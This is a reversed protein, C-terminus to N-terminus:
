VATYPVCHREKTLHKIANRVDSGGQKAQEEAMCYKYDTRITKNRYFSRM